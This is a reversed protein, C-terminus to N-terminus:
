GVKGRHSVGLLSRCQLRSSAVLLALPVWFLSGFQPSVKLNFGPIILMAHATNIALAVYCLALCAIVIYLTVREWRHKQFTAGSYGSHAELHSAWGRSRASRLRFIRV